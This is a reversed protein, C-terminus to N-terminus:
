KIGTSGFGGDGRLTDSLEETEEVPLAFASTVMLQALRDGNEVTFPEKSHNILGIMITGRYDSDIVGVSNILSIGKKIGLSSRSFVLAVYDPRPLEIAIGTSIMATEGPLITVSEDLAASLDVAAAGETARKPIVAEPHTRKIKLTEM